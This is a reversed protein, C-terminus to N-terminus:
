GAASLGGIQEGAPAAPAAAGGTPSTLWTWREYLKAEWGRTTGFQVVVGLAALIIFNIMWFPSAQLAARVPNAAVEASPLGGFLFLYTGVITGAGLVSTALIVVWKQVNLYLAAGAVALGLVVGVIWVMFQFDFGIAETLGSGLAYGLAGAVVAVALFYFLYSCVAFLVAFFFGAIWGVVTSLFGQGLIAQIM